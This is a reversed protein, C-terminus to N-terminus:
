NKHRELLMNGNELLRSSSFGMCFTTFVLGAGTCEESKFEQLRILNWPSAFRLVVQLDLESGTFFSSWPKCRWVALIHTSPGQIERMNRSLMVCHCLFPGLLIFTNGLLVTWSCNFKFWLQRQPWLHSRKPFMDISGTLTSVFKIEFDNTAIEIVLILLVTLLFPFLHCKSKM